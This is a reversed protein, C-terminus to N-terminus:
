FSATNKLSKKINRLGDIVRTTTNYLAEKTRSQALRLQVINRTQPQWEFKYSGERGKLFDYERCGFGIAHEIAFSRLLVVPSHLGSNEQRFGSQYSHIKHNYAFNYIAAIPAGEKMAVYLKLWANNIAKPAFLRHFRTFKESSFVGPMGKSVWRQQHLEVLAEFGEAFEEGREIVKLEGDQAAFARRDRNIKQRFSKKLNKLLDDWSDPLRLYVCLEDRMTQLRTGSDECHSKLLPLNPSDGSVDTLLVEDWDADEEEIYKFIGTLAEQERGRKLIFDLYDSCIEDAEDEGSALFEIRRFPLVGYHQVTRKLMPAIGILENGVLALLIYLERGESFVDWWTSMWEYTLTLTNSASEELLRNWVPELAAFGERTTIKEIRVIVGIQV